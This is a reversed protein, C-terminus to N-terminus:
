KKKAEVLELGPLGAKIYLARDAAAMDPLSLARYPKIKLSPKLEFCAAQLREDLQEYDLPMVKRYIRYHGKLIRGDALQVKNTGEKPNPFSATFLEERLSKEEDTLHKISERLEAWRELKQLWDM